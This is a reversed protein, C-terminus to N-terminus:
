RLVVKGEVIKVKDGDRLNEGEPQLVVRFRGDDLRVIIEYTVLPPKADHQVENSSGLTPKGAGKGLPITAVFGSPKSKDAETPRTEKEVRKVSRVVGCDVCKVLVSSVPPSAPSPAQASALPAVFLLCAAISRM